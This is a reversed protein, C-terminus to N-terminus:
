PCHRWDPPLIGRHDVEFGLLEKGNFIVALHGPPPTAVERRMTQVRIIHGEAEGLRWRVTVTQYPAPLPRFYRRTV